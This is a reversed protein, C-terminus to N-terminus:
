VRKGRRLYIGILLVFSLPVAVLAALRATSGERRQVIELEADGGSRHFTLMLGGGSEPKVELGPLSGLGAAADLGPLGGRAKLESEAAKSVNSSVLADVSLRRLGYFRSGETFDRYSRQAAPRQQDNRSTKRAGKTERWYRRKLFNTTDEFSQEVQSRDASDDVQDAQNNLTRLDKQARQADEILRGQSLRQQRFKTEGDAEPARLNAELGYNSQLEALNDGLERELRSLEGLAQQRLRKSDSELAVKTIKEQQELLNEVKKAYQVSASVERVNGGRHRAVVGSPFEIKWLTEIVKVGKVKPAILQTVGRFEALDLKPEEYRLAVQLDLHAAGVYEIPIEITRGGGSQPAASQGVSVARGDLTVGWLEAGPPLEVVLFQLSRNHLTFVVETRTTGDSGIITSLEALKVLAVLGSAQEIEQTELTLRWDLATARYAPKLNKRAVGEPVFPFDDASAPSLGRRDSEALLVAPTQLVGLYADVADLVEGADYLALPAFTPAEGATRPVRFAVDVTQTGTRPSQLVVEVETGRIHRTRQNDTDVSLLQAGQPLQLRFRDRPAFRIQYAIRTNYYLYDDAIRAFSVTTAALRSPRRRAAVVLPNTPRRARYGFRVSEGSGLHLWSPAREVKISEWRETVVPTLDLADNAALTWEITENVRAGDPSIARVNPLTLDDAVNDLRLEAAWTVETGIESRGSFHVIVREGAATSVVEWFRMNESEVTHVWWGAPLDIVHRLAGPRSQTYRSKAVFALREPHLISVVNTEIAADITIPGVGLIEGGGHGHIHHLRDPAASRAQPFLRVVEAQSVRQVNALSDGDFREAPSHRLGVYTEQRAADILELTPLDFRDSSSALGTIAVTAQDFPESFFLELVRAADRAGPESDETDAEALAVVNWESLRPADVGTINWDGHVRFRLTDIHRGTARVADLRRVIVGATHLELLTYSQDEWHAGLDREQRPFSWEITLRNAAGVDAVLRTATDDKEIVGPSETGIIKVEATAPFLAQLTGAAAIGLSCAVRYTGFQHNVNAALELLLEREGRGHLVLTPVGDRTRLGAASGDLQASVVKLGELSLPLETWRETLVRVPVRARITAQSGSVEMEYRASGLLFPAPLTEATPAPPPNALQWLEGFREEPVYVKPTEDGGSGVGNDDGTGYPILVGDWERTLTTHDTAAVVKQTAPTENAAAGATLIVGAITVMWLSTTGRWAFTRRGLRKRVSRSLAAVTRYVLTGVALFLLGECLPVMLLPSKWDLAVPLAACVFMIYTWVFVRSRWTRFRRLFLAGLAIALLGVVRASAREWRYTWYGLEIRPDGGLKDIEILGGAPTFTVLPRGGSPEGQKVSLRQAVGSVEGGQSVAGAAEFVAGDLQPVEISRLTPTEFLAWRTKRGRLIPVLFSELFNTPPSRWTAQRRVIANTELPTFRYNWPHYIRWTTKAVPTNLLRPGDEAWRHSGWTPAGDEGRQRAEGGSPREYTFLVRSYSRSPLPISVITPDSDGAPRVARIPEGNVAAAVIRADRPLQVDLYQTQPSGLLLEARTRSVGEDGILTTLTMEQVLRQLVPAREHVVTALTGLDGQVRYRFASLLRGNKWPEAFEPVDEMAITEVGDGPAAKVEVAGRSQLVVFRERGFVDSLEISPLPRPATVTHAVEYEIRLLRTGLWPRLFHVTYAGEASGPLVERIEEGLIVPEGNPVPLFQLELTEIPRDVVALRVDGRLRLTSELALVHTVAQYEGRTPRRILRVTAGPQAVETTLTAVLDREHLFGDPFHRRDLGVQELERQTLSRWGPLDATLTDLSSPLVMGLDTQQRAADRLGPLTFALDREEWPADTAFTRHELQVRFEASSDRMLGQQLRVVVARADGEGIEEYEVAGPFDAGTADQARIGHADRIAAAAGSNPLANVIPAFDKLVWPEPLNLTFTFLKGRRVGVRLVGDLRATEESVQLLYTAHFESRPALEADRVSLRAAPSAFSFLHRPVADIASSSLPVAEHRLSPVSEANASLELMQSVGEVTTEHGLQSFVAVYGFNSMANELAPPAVDFVESSPNLAATVMVDVGGLRPEKLTLHLHSDATRWSDILPGAVDLVTATPPTRLVLEGVEHRAITIHSRWVCYPNGSQALLSFRHAATLLPESKGGGHRRQWTLHLTDRKGLAITWSTSEETSQTQYPGCASTITARGPVELRLHSAAAHVLPGSVSWRDEMERAALSYRLEVSHEGKGRLLLYTQPALATQPVAIIRRAAEKADPASGNSHNSRSPAADIVIWGARGDVRVTGLDPFIGGLPCRVWGDTTVQVKVHATLRLTQGIVQGDYSASTVVARVPPLETPQDIQRSKLARALLARYAPLEMIVGDPHAGVYRHFEDYPVYIERVLDSPSQAPADATAGPDSSRSSVAEQAYVLPSTLLLALGFARVVPFRWMSPSERAPVEIAEAVSHVSPHSCRMGTTRRFSHGYM